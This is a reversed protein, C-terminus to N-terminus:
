SKNLEDEIVERKKKLTKADRLACATDFKMGEIELQDYARTLVRNVQEMRINRLSTDKPAESKPTEASKLEKKPTL